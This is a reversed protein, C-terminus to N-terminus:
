KWFLLTPIDLTPCLRHRDSSAKQLLAGLLSPWLPGRARLGRWDPNLTQLIPVKPNDKEQMVPESKGPKPLSAQPLCPGGQLRENLAGM